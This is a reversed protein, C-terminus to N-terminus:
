LAYFGQDPLRGGLIAPNTEMMLRFMAELPLRAYSAPTAVLKCYDISQALMSVPQGLVPAAAAAAKQPYALVEATAQVLASQLAPLLDGHRQSFSRTIALGALPVVSGLETIEGWVEQMNVARVISQNAESGRIQAVTATPENLLAADVQGDLLMQAAETPNAAGVWKVEVKAHALVAHLILDPTENVFPVAIRKRELGKLGQVRGAPALIYLLGNTMVNMLRLGMGRNYFNAAVQTPMLSLDIAGSALGARLEDPSRWLTLSVEDALRSFAGSAVAYALTITPGSPPGYLALRAIPPRAARVLPPAMLTLAGAGLAGLVRRRSRSALASAAEPSSPAADAAALLASSAPTNARM